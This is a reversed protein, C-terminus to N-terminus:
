RLWYGTESRVAGLRALQAGHGAHEIQENAAKEPPYWARM